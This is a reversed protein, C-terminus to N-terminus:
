FKFTGVWMFRSVNETANNFKLVVVLLLYKLFDIMAKLFQVYESFCDYSSLALVDLFFNLISYVILNDIVFFYESQGM